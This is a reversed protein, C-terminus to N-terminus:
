LYGLVINSFSSLQLNLILHGNIGSDLDSVNAKYTLSLQHCIISPEEDKRGGGERGGGEREGERGGERGGQRGGERECM